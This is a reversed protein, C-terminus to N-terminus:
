LRGGIQDIKQRDQAALSAIEKVVAQTAAIEVVADEFRDKILVHRHQDVGMGAAVQKLTAQTESFENVAGKLVGGIQAIKQKDESMSAAM